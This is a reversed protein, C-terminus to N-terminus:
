RTANARRFLDLITETGGAAAGVAYPNLDQMGIQGLGYAGKVMSPALGLGVSLAPNRSLYYTGAGLVGGSLSPWRGPIGSLVSEANHEAISDLLQKAAVNGKQAEMRLSDMMSKYLNADMGSARAVPIEALEGVSSRLQEAHAPSVSLQTPYGPARGIIKSELDQLIPSMKASPTGSIANSAKNEAAILTDYLPGVSIPENRLVADAKLNTSMGFARNLISNLVPTRRLGYMAAKGLGSAVPGGVASGGVALATSLEDVEGKTLYDQVSQGIGSGAVGGVYPGAVGTVPSTLAGLGTGAIGGATAGIGPKVFDWTKQPLGSLKEMLWSQVDESPVIGTAIVGPDYSDVKNIGDFNYQKDAM